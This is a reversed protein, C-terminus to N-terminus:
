RLGVPPSLIERLVIARRMESPDKLAALWARANAAPAVSSTAAVAPEPALPASRQLAVARETEDAHQAEARDRADRMTQQAAERERAQALKEALRERLLDRGSQAVPRPALLPPALPRETPQSPLAPPGRRQREAIKRRIEEQIRRTREADESSASQMSSPRTLPGAEGGDIKQAHRQKLWYAFAVVIAAVVQIHELIWDM